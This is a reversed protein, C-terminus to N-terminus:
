CNTLPPVFMPSHRTVIPDLTPMYNALPKCLTPWLHAPLHASRGITLMTSIIIVAGGERARVAARGLTMGNAFTPLIALRTPLGHSCNAAQDLAPHGIAM